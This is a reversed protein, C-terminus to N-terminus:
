NSCKLHYASKLKCERYIEKFALLIARIRMLQYRLTILTYLHCISAFTPWFGRLDITVDVVLNFHISLTPKIIHMMLMSIYFLLYRIQMAPEASEGVTCVGGFESASQNWKLPNM